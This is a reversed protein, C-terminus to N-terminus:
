RGTFLVEELYLACEERIYAEWAAQKRRRRGLWFVWALALLTWVGGLLYYAGFFILVPMM